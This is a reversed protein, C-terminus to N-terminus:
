VTGVWATASVATFVARKGAAVTFAANTVGNMDQGTSPFVELSQTSDANVVEKRAGLGAHGSPLKVSDANTGVVTVVSVPMAGLQIANEQGGGAYATIGLDGAGGDDHQYGYTLLRGAQAYNANTSFAGAILTVNGAVSLGQGVGAYGGSDEVGGATAMQAWTRATTGVIVDGTSGTISAGTLDARAGVGDIRVGYGANSAGILGIGSVAFKTAGEILVGDNGGTTGNVDCGVEVKQCDKFSVPTSGADDSRIDGTVYQCVVAEMVGTNLTLNTFDAETARHVLLSASTNAVCNELQFYKDRKALVSGSVHATDLLCAYASVNYNSDTILREMKCAVIRYTASCAKITVVGLDVGPDEIVMADGAAIGPMAHVTLATTTNSIIPAISGSAVGTTIRVFSGVFDDATWNASAAPKVLSTTTTGAGLSGSFDGSTPTVAVLASTGDVTVTGFGDIGQATFSGAVTAAVISIDQNIWGGTTTAPTKTYGSSSIVTGDPDIFYSLGGSVFYRGLNTAPPPATALERLDVTPYSSNPAHVQPYYYSGSIPM